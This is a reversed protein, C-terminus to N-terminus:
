IRRWFLNKLNLMYIEIAIIKKSELDLLGSKELRKYSDDSNTVIEAVYKNFDNGLTKIIDREQKRRAVKVKDISQSHEM